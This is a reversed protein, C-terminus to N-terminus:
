GSETTVRLELLDSNPQNPNNETQLTALEDRLEFFKTQTLRMAEKLDNNDEILRQIREKFASNSSKLESNSEESNLLSQNLKEIERNLRTYDTLKEENVLNGIKVIDDKLSSIM